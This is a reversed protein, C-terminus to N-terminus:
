GLRFYPYPRIKDGIEIVCLFVTTECMFHYSIGGVILISRYETNQRIVRLIMRPKRGIHLRRSCCFTLGLIFSKSIETLAISQVTIIISVGTVNTTPTITRGLPVRLGVQFYLQSIKFYLSLQFISIGRIGKATNWFVSPVAWVPIMSTDVFLFCSWFRSTKAM